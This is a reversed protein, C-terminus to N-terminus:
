VTGVTIFYQKGM